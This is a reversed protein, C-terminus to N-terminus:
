KAKRPAKKKPAAKRGPVPMTAMLEKLKALDADTFVLAHGVVTGIGKFYGSEYLHYKITQPNRGLIKAIQKLSYVPM